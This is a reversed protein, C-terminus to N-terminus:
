IAKIMERFFVKYRYKKYMNFARKNPGFVSLLIFKCGKQKLWDEMKDMLESGIGQNRYIKKIFFKSIKGIKEIRLELLEQDNYTKVYCSGCGIVENKYEVIYIKGKGSIHRELQKKIIVEGYGNKRERLGTFDMNIHFDQNKLLIEKLAERDEQIYERIKYDLSM